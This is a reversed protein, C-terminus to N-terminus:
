KIFPPQRETVLVSHFINSLSDYWKYSIWWQIEIAIWSFKSQLEWDSQGSADICFVRLTWMQQVYDDAPSLAATTHINM